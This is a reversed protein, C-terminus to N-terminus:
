HFADAYCPQVELAELVVVLQVQFPIQEQAGLVQVATSILIM